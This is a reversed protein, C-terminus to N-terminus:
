AIVERQGDPAIRVIRLVSTGKTRFFAVFRRAYELSVAGTTRVVNGPAVVEEVEYLNVEGM